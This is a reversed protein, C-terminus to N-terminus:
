PKNSNPRNGNESMGQPKKPPRGPKGKIPIQLTEPQLKEAIIIAREEESSEIWGNKKMTEVEGSSANHWGHNPHRMLM